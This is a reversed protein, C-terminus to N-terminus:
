PFNTYDNYLFSMTAGSSDPMVTKFTQFLVYALRTGLFNSPDLYTDRFLDPSHSSLLFNNLNFRASSTTECKFFRKIISETTREFVIALLVTFDYM